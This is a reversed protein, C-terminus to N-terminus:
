PTVSTATNGLADAWQTGNWWIPKGCGTDYYMFGIPPNMPRNYNDGVGSGPGVTPNTPNPNPVIAAIAAAIETDVYDKRTLHNDAKPEHPTMPPTNIGLSMSTVNNMSFDILSNNQDFIIEYVDNIGNGSIFLYRDELMQTISSNGVISINAASNRGDINLPGTLTGGDLPLYDLSSSPINAIAEVIATDVYDKRTLSKDTTPKFLTVPALGEQISMSIVDNIKFDLQTNPIDLSMGLSIQNGFTGLFFGYSESTIESFSETGMLAIRPYLNANDTILLSGSLHGGSLPLFDLVPDPINDIADVIEDAIKTDVYDKRTLHHDKKPDFPTIPAENKKFTVPITGHIHINLEQTGNENPRILYSESSINASNGFRLEDSHLTSIMGTGNAFSDVVILGAQNNSDKNITVYGLFDPNDNGVKTTFETNLRDVSWLKDSGSIASDDITGGIAAQARSDTFYLNIDEVIALSTLIVKGIKGNVSSVKGSTPMPVTIWKSNIHDYTLISNALPTIADVDALDRLNVSALSSNFAGETYYQFQSGVLAPINDTNLNVNGTKSNVSVVLGSNVRLETWDASTGTNGGNYIFTKNLDTRVAVDGIDPSLALMEIVNDVVFAENIDVANLYEQPIKGTSDLPVVGNIAGKEEFPIGRGSGAETYNNPMGLFQGITTRSNMGLKGTLIVMSQNGTGDDLIQIISQLPIDFIGLSSINNFLYLPNRKM